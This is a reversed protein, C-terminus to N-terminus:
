NFENGQSLTERDHYNLKKEEAYLNYYIKLDKAYGDSLPGDIKSLATEKPNQFRFMQINISKGNLKPTIREFITQFGFLADFTKYLIKDGGESTLGSERIATTFSGMDVFLINAIHREDDKLNAHAHMWLGFSNYELIRQLLFQTFPCDETHYNM